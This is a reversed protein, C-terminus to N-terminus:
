PRQMLSRMLAESCVNPCEFKRWLFTQRLIMGPCPYPTQPESIHPRQDLTVSCAASSLTGCTQSQGRDQGSHRPAPGLFPLWSRDHPRIHNSPRPQPLSGPSTVRSYSRLSHTQWSSFCLYVEQPCLERPPEAEQLQDDAADPPSAVTGFAPFTLAPDIVGPLCFNADEGVGAGKQPEPRSPEGSCHLWLLDAQMQNIKYSSNQLKKHQSCCMIHFKGGSCDKM